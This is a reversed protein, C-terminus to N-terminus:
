KRLDGRETMCKEEQRKGWETKNQHKKEKKTRTTKKQGGKKKEKKDFQDTQKSMEATVGRRRM